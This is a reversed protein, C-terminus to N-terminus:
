TQPRKMSLRAVTPWGLVCLNIVAVVYPGIVSVWFQLHALETEWTGFKGVLDRFLLSQTVLGLTLGVLVFAHLYQRRLLNAKPVLISIWIALMSFTEGMLILSLDDRALLGTSLQGRRVPVAGELCAVTSIILFPAYMMTAPLMVLTEGYLRVSEWFSGEDGTAGPGRLEPNHM